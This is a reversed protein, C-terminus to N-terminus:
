GEDALLSAAGKDRLRDALECGLAEADDLPGELEAAIREHGQLDLVVASLFLTEGDIRSFAGLPAHCGARLERLLAREANVCAHTAAHDIAALSDQTRRDNRRCELGLAGQSVAPYVAPPELRLSIRQQMDLRILGAEALVVADYEGDDLKRLRTEVNGRIEATQLDPRQHLLQAQRRPSGTGVRAGRPLDGLNRSSSEAPFVLADYVSEREPVAALVLNENAATPLDKLSHVALDARDELLAKQVESTFVGLGGFRRLPDLLERDGRTSVKVLEVDPGPVNRRLLGAVHNAQWLALRSARTAIRLRTESM